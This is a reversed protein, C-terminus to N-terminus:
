APVFEMQGAEPFCLMFISSLPAWNTESIIVGNVSVLHILDDLLLFFSGQLSLGRPGAHQAEIFVINLFRFVCVFIAVEIVLFLFVHGLEM